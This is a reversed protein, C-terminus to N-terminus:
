GGMLPSKLFSRALLLNSRIQSLPSNEIQQMKTSTSDNSSLVDKYKEVIYELQDNGGLLENNYRIMPFTEM